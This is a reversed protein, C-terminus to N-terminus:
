IKTKNWEKEKLYENELIKTQEKSKMSRRQILFSADNLSDNLYTRHKSREFNKM